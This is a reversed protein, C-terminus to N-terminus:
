LNALRQRGCVRSPSSCSCCTESADMRRLGFRRLWRSVNRGVPKVHALGCRRSWALWAGEGICFAAPRLRVTVQQVRLLVLVEPKGVERLMAQARKTRPAMSLQKDVLAQEEKSLGDLSRVVYESVRLRMFPTRLGVGLIAAPKWSGELSSRMYLKRAMADLKLSGGDSREIQAVAGQHRTWGREWQRPAPGEVTAAADPGSARAGGVPRGSEDSEPVAQGYGCKRVIPWYQTGDRIVCWVDFPSADIDFAEIPWASRSGRDEGRSWADISEIVSISRLAVLRWGFGKAAETTAM